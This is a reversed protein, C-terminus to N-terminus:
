KQVCVARAMMRDYKAERIQKLWQNGAALCAERSTFGDVSEISAAARAAKYDGDNTWVTLILIWGYM